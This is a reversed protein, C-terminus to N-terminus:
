LEFKVAYERTLVILLSTYSTSGEFFLTLSVGTTGVGETPLESNNEDRPVKIFNAGAGAARLPKATPPAFPEKKNLRGLVKGTINGGTAHPLACQRKFSYVFGKFIM